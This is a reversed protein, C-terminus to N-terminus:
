NAEATSDNNNSFFRQNAQSLYREFFLLDSDTSQNLVTNYTKEYWENIVVIKMDISDLNIKLSDNALLLSDIPYVVPEVPKHKCKAFIGIFIVTCIVLITVSIARKDM